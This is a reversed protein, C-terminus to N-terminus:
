LECMMLFYVSVSAFKTLLALLVLTNSTLSRKTLHKHNQQFHIFILSLSGHETIKGKPGLSGVPGPVGPDGPAGAYVLCM